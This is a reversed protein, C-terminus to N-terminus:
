RVLIYNILISSHIVLYIRASVWVCYALRCMSEKNAWSKWVEDDLHDGVPPQGQELGNCCNVKRCISVVLSRISQAVETLRLDASFQM